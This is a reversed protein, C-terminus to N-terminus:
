LQYYVIRHARQVMRFAGALKYALRYGFNLRALDPDDTFYWEELLHFGPAWAELERPDDMGWGITAGTSKLSSHSTASRATMRSFVDAILRCGPFTERLRLVLRQVDAESLYMLLGEAVVLVPRGGSPVIDMWELDTVSAAILQYRESRTFFQRHLEVVPPMDLDYWKVRGDDVRWFRSDLGCGLQLVVSDSHEALFDRTVADMKKARQCILVVTKYPVHLRTFDYDVRNLIHQAMPDFFLHNGPQAKAYLTILLTEQEPTLAVKARTTAPEPTVIENKLMNVMV